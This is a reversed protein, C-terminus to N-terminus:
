VVSWGFNVSRHDRGHGVCCSFAHFCLASTVTCMADVVFIRLLLEYACLNAWAQTLMALLSTKKELNFGCAVSPWQWQHM